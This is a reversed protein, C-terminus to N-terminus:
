LHSVPFLVSLHNFSFPPPSSRAFEIGRKACETFGPSKFLTGRNNRPSCDDSWLSASEEAKPGLRAKWPAGTNRDLNPRRQKRGWLLLGAKKKAKWTLNVRVKVTEIIRPKLIHGHPRRCRPCFPGTPALRTHNQLLQRQDEAVKLRRPSMWSPGKIGRAHRPCVHVTLHLGPARAGGGWGVRANGCICDSCECNYWHAKKSNMDNSNGSSSM